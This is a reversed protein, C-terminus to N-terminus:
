LGIKSETAYSWQMVTVLNKFNEYYVLKFNSKSGRQLGQKRM